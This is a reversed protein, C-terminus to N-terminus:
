FLGNELDRINRLSTRIHHRLLADCRSAIYEPDEDMREDMYNKLIGMFINLYFKLMFNRDKESVEVDFDKSCDIIAQEILQGGYKEIINLLERKYSSFYMHLIDKKRSYLFYLFVKFGEVWSDYTNCNEMAKAFDSMYADELADILSYYHNYLTQRSIWAEKCVMKVTLQDASHDQLLRLLTKKIIEKTTMDRSNNQMIACGQNNM